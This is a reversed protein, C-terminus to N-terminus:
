FLMRCSVVICVACGFCLFLPYVIRAPNKRAAIKCACPPMIGYVEKGSDVFEAFIRWIYGDQVDAQIGCIVIVPSIPEKFFPLDARNQAFQCFKM